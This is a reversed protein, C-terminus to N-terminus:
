DRLEVTPETKDPRVVYLESGDLQRVLFAILSDTSVTEELVFSRADEDTTVSLLYLAVSRDTSLRHLFLGDDTHYVFGDGDALWHNVDNSGSCLQAGEIVARQQQDNVALIRITGGSDGGREYLIYRGDPSWNHCRGHPL